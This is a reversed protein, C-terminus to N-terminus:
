KWSTLFISGDEAVKVKDFFDEGPLERAWALTGDANYKAIFYGGTLLTETPEGPGAVASEACAGLVVACNDPTIDISYTISACDSQLTRVWDFSGDGLYRAIVMTSKNLSEVRTGAANAPDFVIIGGFSGAAFFSGDWATAIELPYLGISSMSSNEAGYTQVAWELLGDSAYKAAFIDGKTEQSIITENPENEGFIFDVLDPWANKDFFRGAMVTSNNSCSDIDNAFFCCEYANGFTTKVWNFTGDFGYNALFIGSGESIDVQNASGNGFTAEGLFDGSVAISNGHLAIASSKAGGIGGYGLYLPGDFRAWQLEGDTGFMALYYDWATNVAGSLTTENQLGESFTVTTVFPGTLVIRGDPLICLDSVRIESTGGHCAATKKVWQFSGNCDYSAQYIGGYPDTLDIVPTNGFSATGVFTGATIVCGDPGVGLAHCKAGQSAEWVMIGENDFRYVKGTEPNTGTYPDRGVSTKTTQTVVWPYKEYIKKKKKCGGVVHLTVAMAFCLLLSAYKYKM